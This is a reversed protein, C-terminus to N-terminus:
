SEGVWGETMSISMSLDEMTWFIWVGRSFPRSLLGIKGMLRLSHHAGLCVKRPKLWGKDEVSPGGKSLATSSVRSKSALMNCEFVVWERGLFEQM